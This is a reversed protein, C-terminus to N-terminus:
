RWGLVEHRKLAIVICAMLPGDASCWSPKHM